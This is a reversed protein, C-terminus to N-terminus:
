SSSHGASSTPPARSRPSWEEEVFADYTRYYRGHKCAPLTSAVKEMYRPLCTTRRGHLLEKRDEPGKRRALVLVGHCCIAAM